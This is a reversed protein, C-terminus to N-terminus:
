HYPRKFETLVGGGWHQAAFVCAEPETLGKVCVSETAQTYLAKEPGLVTNFGQKYIWTNLPSESLHYTTGLLIVFIVNYDKKSLPSHGLM